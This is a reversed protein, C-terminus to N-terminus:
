KSEIKLWLLPLWICDIKMNQWFSLKWLLVHVYMTDVQFINLDLWSKNSIITSSLRFHFAFFTLLTTSKHLLLECGRSGSDKPFSCMDHNAQDDVELVVTSDGLLIIAQMVKPTRTTAQPLGAYQISPTRGAAFNDIDQLSYHVHVQVTYKKITVCALCHMSSFSGPSCSKTSIDHSIVGRHGLVTCSLSPRLKTKSISVVKNMIGTLLETDSLSTILHFYFIWSLFLSRCYLWWVSSFTLFLSVASCLVLHVPLSRYLATIFKISLRQLCQFSSLVRPQFWQTLGWTPSALISYRILTKIRRVCQPWYFPYFLSSQLTWLVSVCNEETSLGCFM